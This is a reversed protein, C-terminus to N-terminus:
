IPGEASFNQVIVSCYRIIPVINRVSLEFTAVWRNYNKAKYLHLAQCNKLIRLNVEKM